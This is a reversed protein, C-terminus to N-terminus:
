GHTRRELRKNLKNKVRQVTAEQESPPLDAIGLAQAFVATKREGQLMLDLVQLEGASLGQRVATLIEREAKEAEEKLQLIMVPEKDAGLYKGAEDSLEVNELSKKKRRQEKNLINQLDRKAAMKLYAWLPLEGSNRGPDFSAPKKILSVLADGAADAIFERPISRDNTAKLFDILRDLYAEALQASAVPDGDILRRHLDLEEDLTLPPSAM